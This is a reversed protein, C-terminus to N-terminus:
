SNVKAEPASGGAEIVARPKLQKEFVFPLVKQKAKQHFAFSSQNNNDGNVNLAMPSYSGDVNLLRISAATDSLLLPLINKIEYRIASLLGILLLSLRFLPLTDAAKTLKALSTRSQVLQAKPNLNNIATTNTNSMEQNM